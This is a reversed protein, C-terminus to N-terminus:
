AKFGPPPKYASGYGFGDPNSPPMIVVPDQGQYAPLPGYKGDSQKYLTDGPKPILIGKFETEPTPLGNKGAWSSVEPSLPKPAAKNHAGPCLRQMQDIVVVIWYDVDKKTETDGALAQSSYLKTLTQELKVLRAARTAESMPLIPKPKNGNLRSQMEGSFSGAWEHSVKCGCPEVTFLMQPVDFGPVPCPPLSGKHSKGGTEPIDRTYM